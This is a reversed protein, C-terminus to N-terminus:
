RKGDSPLIGKAASYALHLFRRQSKLPRTRSADSFIQISRACGTAPIDEIVSLGEGGAVGADPGSRL